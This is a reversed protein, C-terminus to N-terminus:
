SWLHPPRDSQGRAPPRASPPHVASPPRVASLPRRIASLQRIAPPCVASTSARRKMSGESWLDQMSNLWQGPSYM